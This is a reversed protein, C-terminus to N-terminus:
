WGSAASIRRRSRGTRENESPFFISVGGEQERRDKRTGDLREQQEEDMKLCNGNNM